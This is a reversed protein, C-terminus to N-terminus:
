VYSLTYHPVFLELIPIFDAIYNVCGLFKQLQIKDKLENSFKDAFEISRQIPTTTGQYIKYGLFRIKTQFTKIKKAYFVLGNEKVLNIFAHLHEIHQNISNSFILVDDLYVLLAFKMRPYFIDNM